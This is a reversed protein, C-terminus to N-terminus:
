GTAAAHQDRGGVEELRGDGDLTPFAPVRGTLLLGLYAGYRRLEQRLGAIDDHERPNGVVVQEPPCWGGLGQVLARMQAAGHWASPADMGVVVLGALKGRLPAAGVLDFANVLVGSVANYYAPASMVFATAADLDARLRDLDPADYADDPRGDWHPLEYDRLDIWRTPAGSSRLGRDVERLMERAASRSDLGPAPKRSGCVLGVTM